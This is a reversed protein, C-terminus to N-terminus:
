VLLKARRQQTRDIGKQLLDPVHRIELFVPHQTVGRTMSWQAGVSIGEVIRRLDCMIRAPMQRQRRTSHRNTVHLINAVADYIEILAVLVEYKQRDEVFIHM